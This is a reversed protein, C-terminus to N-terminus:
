LGFYLQPPEPQARAKAKSVLEGDVFSVGEPVPVPRLKMVMSPHNIADWAQSVSGTLARALRQLSELAQKRTRSVWSVSRSFLTALEADSVEVPIGYSRTLIFRETEPLFGLFWDLDYKIEMLKIDTDEVPLIDSLTMRKDDADIVPADLSVLERADLLAHLEVHRLSVGSVAAIEEFSPADNGSAALTKKARRIKGQGERVWEPLRIIGNLLPSRGVADHIALYAYTSLRCGMEISFKDIARMLGEVADGMLDEALIGQDPRAYGLAIKHCFRMNLLILRERSMENGSQAERILQFEESRSLLDHQLLQSYNM